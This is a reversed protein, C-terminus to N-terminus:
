VRVHWVSEASNMCYVAETYMMDVMNLQLQVAAKWLM